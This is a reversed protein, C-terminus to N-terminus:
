LFFYNIILGGLLTMLLPLAILYAVARPRFVQRYMLISKIDVMPGFVLFALVSGFSFLGTFGLAVFADVTSCISLVFALTLMVLVSLLPGRGVALLAAQPIFTQMAAALLAGLVLYRGMEFFEDAGIVLARQLKQSRSEATREHAQLVPLTLRLVKDPSKEVSFIVATAFAIALTLALRWGLLPGWGFASATSFIVIPNLVPAALMFAVGSSLPMGKHILRRGLPITGCECV